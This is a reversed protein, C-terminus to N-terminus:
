DIDYATVPEITTDDVFEYVCLLTRGDETQGVAFPRSSSRSIGSSDPNQVISEFEDISVVHQALHEVIEPTWLFLYFPMQHGM